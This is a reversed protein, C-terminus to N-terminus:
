VAEIKVEQPLQIAPSDLNPDEYEVFFEGTKENLWSKGIRAASTAFAAPRVTKRSILALMTQPTIIVRKTMDADLTLFLGFWMPQRLGM